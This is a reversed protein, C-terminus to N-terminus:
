GKVVKLGSFLRRYDQDGTRRLHELADRVPRLLEDAKWEAEEATLSVSLGGRPRSAFRLLFDALTGTQRCEGCDWSGDWYRIDFCEAGGCFPCDGVFALADGRTGAVMGPVHEYFAEIVMMSALAFAPYVGGLMVKAKQNLDRAAVIENIQHVQGM